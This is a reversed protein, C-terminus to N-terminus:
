KSRLNNPSFPEFAASVMLKPLGWRADFAAWGTSTKALQKKV